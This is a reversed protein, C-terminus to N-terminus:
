MEGSKEIVWEPAPPPPDYTYGSGRAHVHTKLQHALGSLGEKKMSAYLIKLRNQVRTRMKTLRNDLDRVKGSRDRNAQNLKKLSELTALSDAAELENGEALAEVVEQELCKRKEGIEATYKGDVVKGSSREDLVATEGLDVYTVIQGPKALLAILTKMGRLQRLTGDEEPTTIRWGSPTGTIMYSTARQESHQGRGRDVCRGMSGDLVAGKLLQLTDRFGVAFAALVTAEFAGGDGRQIPAIPTRPMPDAYMRPIPRFPRFIQELREVLTSADPPPEPIQELSRLAADQMGPTISPMAEEPLGRRILELASGTPVLGPRERAVLRCIKERLAIDSVVFEPGSNDPSSSCTM